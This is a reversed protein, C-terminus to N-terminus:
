KQGRFVRDPHEEIFKYLDKKLEGDKVHAIMGEDMNFNSIFVCNCPIESMDMGIAVLPHVFFIETAEYIHECFQKAAESLKDLSIELDLTKEINYNVM